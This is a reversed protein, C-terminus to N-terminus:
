KKIIQPNSFSLIINKKVPLKLKFHIQQPLQYNNFTQYGINLIGVLKDSQFYHVEKVIWNEDLLFYGYDGDLADKEIAKIRYTYGEVPKMWYLRYKGIFKSYTNDENITMFLGSRAFISELPSLIEEYYRDVNKIILQIQKGKKFHLLCFPTQGFTIRDKPINALQKQILIGDITINFEEPTQTNWHYHLNSFIERTGPLKAFLHQALLFFITFFLFKSNSM